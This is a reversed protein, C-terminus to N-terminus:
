KLILDSGEPLSYDNNAKITKITINSFSAMMNEAWKLAQTQATILKRVIRTGFLAQEETSVLDRYFPTLLIFKAIQDPKLRMLRGHQQQFDTESGDFSEKIIYNVGVLNVGRNLKKCVALERIEGSNLKELIVPDADGYFTPCGLKDAQETLASYIVVKNNPGKIKELINKTLVISSDLTRLVKVRRAMAYKFKWEAAALEKNHKENPFMSAQAEATRRLIAMKQFQSNAYRYQDNESALFHGGKKLPVRITRKTSLNFEVIIIESKNLLGNEQMEETTIEFCVPAYLFLEGRKEETCFGTLGLLNKWKNYMFYQKYMPSIAFDIEM